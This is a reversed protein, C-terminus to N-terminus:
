RASRLHVPRAADVHPLPRIEPRAGQVGRGAPRVGLPREERFRENTAAENFGIPGGVLRLVSDRLWLYTLNDPAALPSIHPNDAAFTIDDSDIHTYRYGLSELVHSARSDEIMKRSLLVDQSRKGLISPLRSLYDMNLASAMNLESKSYPSRIGGAMVFGRKELERVFGSNDYRFYKKLVDPRAYDDPIIFYVDPRKSGSPIVPKQLASPWLRMDSIRVPPHDIRYTVTKYVPIVLIVAAFVSLGRSLNVVASKSRVVGITGLVFLAIWIPFLIRDSLNWRSLDSTFIGFYFFWVVVFSTLVGAKAGRKFALRLLVFVVAASAAAIALAKWLVQLDIESQNQQFLSVVPYASLLLPCVLATM